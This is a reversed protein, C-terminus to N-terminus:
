IFLRYKKYLREKEIKITDNKHWIFAIFPNIRYRTSTYIARQCSNPYFKISLSSLRYPQCSDPYFLARASATTHWLSGCVIGKCQLTPISGNSGITRDNKKKITNGICFYYARNTKTNQAIGFNSFHTNKYMRLSNLSAPYPLSRTKKSLRKWHRM